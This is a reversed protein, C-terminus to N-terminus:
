FTKRKCWKHKMARVTENTYECYIWSCGEQYPHEILIYKVEARSRTIPATVHTNPHLRKKKKKEGTERIKFRLSKIHYTTHLIDM